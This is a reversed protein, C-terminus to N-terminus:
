SHASASRRVEGGARGPAERTLLRRLGAALAIGAGLYVLMGAMIASEAITHPAAYGAVTPITSGLAMGICAGLAARRQERTEILLLAVFPTVILLVAPTWLFARHGNGDM